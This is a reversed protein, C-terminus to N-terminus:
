EAFGSAQLMFCAACTRRLLVQQFHRPCLEYDTLKHIFLLNKAISKAVM